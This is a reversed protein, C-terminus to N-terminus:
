LDMDLTKRPAEQPVGVAAEAPQARAATRLAPARELERELRLQVSYPVTFTEKLRRTEWEPLSENALFAWWQIVDVECATLREPIHEAANVIYDTLERGVRRLVARRAARTTPVTGVIIDVDGPAVIAAFLPPHKLCTWVFYDWEKAFVEVYFELTTYGAELVSPDIEVRYGPMEGLHNMLATRRDVGEEEVFYDPEEGEWEADAPEAMKRAYQKPNVTAIWTDIDFEPSSADLRPDYKPDRV